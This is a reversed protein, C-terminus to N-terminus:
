PNKLLGLFNNSQSPQRAERTGEVKVAAKYQRATEETMLWRSVVRKGQDNEYEWLWLEIENSV